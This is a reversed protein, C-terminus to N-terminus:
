ILPNQAVLNFPVPAGDAIIVDGNCDQIDGGTTNQVTLSALFTETDMENGDAGIMRGAGDTSFGSVCINVSRISGDAAVLDGDTFAVSVNAGNASIVIANSVEPSDQATATGKSADFMGNNYFVDYLSKQLFESQSVVGCGSFSLLM